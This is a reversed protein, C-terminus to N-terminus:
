DTVASKSACQSENEIPKLWKLHQSKSLQNLQPAPIKRIIKKLKASCSWTCAEQVEICVESTINKLRNQKELSVGSIEVTFEASSGEFVKMQFGTKSKTSKAFTGVVRYFGAKPFYYALEEAFASQLNFAYIAFLLIMKVFKGINM